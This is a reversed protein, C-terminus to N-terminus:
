AEPAHNRVWLWGSLDIEAFRAISHSAPLATRRSKRIGTYSAPSNPLGILAALWNHSQAYPVFDEM